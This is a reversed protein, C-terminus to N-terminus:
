WCVRQSVCVASRRVNQSVCVRQGVCMNVSVCANVSACTSQCVREGVCTSQCVREGVLMSHCVRETVCLTLSVSVCVKVSWCASHSCSRLMLYGLTKYGTSAEIREALLFLCSSRYYTELQWCDTQEIM